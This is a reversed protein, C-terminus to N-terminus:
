VTVILLDESLAFDARQAGAKKYETVLCKFRGRCEITLQCLTYDIRQLFAVINLPGSRAELQSLAIDKALPATGSHHLKRPKVGALELLDRTALVPLGNIYYHPQRDPALLLLHKQGEGDFLAGTNECLQVVEEIDEEEPSQQDIVIFINDPIAISILRVGPISTLANKLVAEAAEYLERLQAEKQESEAAETLERLKEEVQERHPYREAFSNPPSSSTSTAISQPKGHDLKSDDPVELGPDATQEAAQAVHM